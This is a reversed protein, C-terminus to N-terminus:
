RSGAPGGPSLADGSWRTSVAPGSSRTTGGSRAPRSSAVPAGLVLWRDQSFRYALTAARATMLLWLAGWLWGLGAGTALVAGAAVAFLVGCLAMAQALWRLDGAGILIGDIAFVVGNLPQMLAVHLLVFASLSVVQPDDTFVEGVWPRVALLAVAVVGGFMASLEIMRGAALRATAADGAGLYRGTMAQGAIAIADLALALLAWVEFGIQYAALDETGIRAAVLAALVFAARLAATRVLLAVGARAYAVLAAPDPRLGAGLRRGAGTVMAVYVAAGCSQAGVTSWASGAIGMDAGYVLVLEVVLNGIATTAAVLLPTRTDQLGRLYGTGALTLLVAPMGVASISLYTVAHDSVPGGAGFLAVLPEAGLALVTGVVVGLGAGLWLGQVGQHAAERHAGAGILRAVTGTTGYALFILIAYASLLIASAVALGALQETGLHGVIATDTLIYVPEAVLAGFAPVALRMIQRDYPSRLLRRM